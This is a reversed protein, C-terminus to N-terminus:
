SRIDLDSIVDKPHQIDLKFKQKLNYRTQSADPSVLARDLTIFNQHEAAITNSLHLADDYTIRSDIKHIDNIHEDQGKKIPITSIQKSRILNLVYLIAKERIANDDCKSAIAWTVEGLVPITIFGNYKKGMAGLYSECDKRESEELDLDHGGFLVSADLVHKPKQRLRRIHKSVKKM